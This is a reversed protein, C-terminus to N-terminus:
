LVNGFFFFVVDLLNRYFFVLFTNYPSPWGCDWFRLNWIEFSFDKNECPLFFNMLNKIVIYFVVVHCYKIVINLLLLYTDLPSFRGSLSLKPSCVHRENISFPFYSVTVNPRFSVLSFKFAWKMDMWTREESFFFRQRAAAFLTTKFSHFVLLRFCHRIKVM